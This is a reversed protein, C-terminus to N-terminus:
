GRHLIKDKVYVGCHWLLVPPLAALAVGTGAVVVGAAVGAYVTKTVLRLPVTRGFYKHKSKYYALPVCTIKNHAQWDQHCYWCFEYSCRSCTMHKCGGDKEIAWTCNPCAQVHHNRCWSRYTRDGCIPISHFDSGCKFCSEKSCSPCYVRRTPATKSTTSPLVQGCEPRPCYRAGQLVLQQMELFDVYKQYTADSMNNRLMRKTLPLRCAGPCVLQNARVEGNIVKHRIYERFCPYCYIAPCAACRGIDEEYLDIDITPRNEEMTSRRKDANRIIDTTTELCIMCQEVVPANSSSRSNSSWSSRSADVNNFYLAGQEELNARLIVREATMTAVM